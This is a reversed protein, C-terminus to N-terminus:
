WESMTDNFHKALVFALGILCILFLDVQTADKLLCYEEPSLYSM